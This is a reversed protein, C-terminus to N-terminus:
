AEVARELRHGYPAQAVTAPQVSADAPRKWVLLAADFLAMARTKMAGENWVSLEARQFYTNLLLASQGLRSRKGLKEGEVPVEPDPFPGNSVSSNLPQTLVTLNGFCHIATGRLSRQEDTMDPTQWYPLKEWSQPMVHEVTLDAQVPVHNSGQLKGRAAYELARLVACTKGPKLEAYVPRHLWKEKFTGDEPWVESPASASLLANRLAIHPAQTAQTVAHLVRLFFRNYGKTTLGCVARRTLYSALDGLAQKLEESDDALRERLALYVPTVTGVDLSRVLRAFEALYGTGEPSILQKFHHSSAVIRALERELDRPGEQWWAKFAQFVHSALTVEESRLITYNFFFLDIRPYTLRGQRERERWYRNASVGKPGADLDFSSWFKQYLEQVPRQSRAAELFVFNRVLDSALLPEGRANLTEFIVQPDDEAELALTMIQIHESLVMFLTEARGADLPRETGLPPVENHSRIQAVLADSHTRDHAPDVADSLDMGRMYALCAHYLYLFTQVMLPREIKRRGERAPYASCLAEVTLQEDSLRRIEDQGAQTPWVKYHDEPQSYPGMNRTLGALMQPIPSQDLKLAAHRFALLLLQLTTSRQQGDIVEYAPVRGFTHRVPAMVISGLFHKQFPQLGVTSTGGAELARRATLEEARDQIDLWLPGVQKELTWVYGRQFIPIQYQFQANFLGIVTTKNPQM